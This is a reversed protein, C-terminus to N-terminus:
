AAIVSRLARPPSQAAALWGRTRAAREWGTGRAPAPPLRPPQVVGGMFGQPEANTTEIAGMTGPRFGSGPISDLPPATATAPRQCRRGNAGITQSALAMVERTGRPDRMSGSAEASVAGSAFAQRPFWLQRETLTTVTVM